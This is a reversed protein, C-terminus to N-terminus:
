ISTIDGESFQSVKDGGQGVQVDITAASAVAVLSAISAVLGYKM